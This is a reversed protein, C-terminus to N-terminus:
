YFMFLHWIIPLIFIKATLYAFLIVQALHLISNCFVQFNNKPKPFATVLKFTIFSKPM